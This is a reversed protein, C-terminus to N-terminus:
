SFPIDIIISSGKELTSDIKFTGKLHDIRTKISSIGM